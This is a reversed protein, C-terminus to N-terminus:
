RDPGTVLYTRAGRRELFYGGREVAGTRAYAQVQEAPVDTVDIRERSGGRSLGGMQTHMDSRHRRHSM